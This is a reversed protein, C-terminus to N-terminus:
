SVDLLHYLKIQGHKDSNYGMQTLVHTIELFLDELAMQAMYQMDFSDTWSIRSVKLGVVEQYTTSGFIDLEVEEFIEVPHRKTEEGFIFDTAKELTQTEEAGTEPNYRTITDGINLQQYIDDLKVGVVVYTVISMSM